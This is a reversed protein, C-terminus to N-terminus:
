PGGAVHWRTSGWFLHPYRHRTLQFTYFSTNHNRPNPSIRIGSWSPTKPTKDALRLERGHGLPTGWLHAGFTGSPSTRPVKARTEGGLALPTGWLHAGLTHGLPTGWPHAGFTHGLPTGWLHAGIPCHRLHSKFKNPCQSSNPSRRWLMDAGQWVSWSPTIQAFIVRWGRARKLSNVHEGPVFSTFYTNRGCSHLRHYANAEEM